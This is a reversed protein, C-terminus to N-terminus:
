ANEWYRCVREEAEERLLRMVKEEDYEYISVKVVEAKQKLLFARLVNNRICEDVAKEVADSLVMHKTYSRVLEVYTMYEKLIPCKEKLSENNGFCINLLTVKLELEPNCTPQKFSDSLKLEMREPLEKLGNYFVVFHPTPLYILKSGYILKEKVFNQLVDSVYFLNRLPM